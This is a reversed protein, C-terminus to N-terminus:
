PTISGGPGALTFTTTGSNHYAIMTYRSTTTSAVRINVGNSISLGYPSVTLGGIANCYTQQDTFYAEQTTAANRVDSEVASSLSRERYKSFQIISIVSLIGIIGIVVMIELITFGCDRRKSPRTVM